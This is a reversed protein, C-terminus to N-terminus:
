LILNKYITLATAGQDILYNTGESGPVAFVDRGQDLAVRATVLSGSRIQAEIVIVAQCLGSIIRNRASFRGRPVFNDPPVESIVAGHTLISNYLARHQPPYIINVGTGLVAVTKGGAEIAAQHAVGDVGLAMGSVIVFRAEVLEKVLKATIEQGFSTIKRTGVVSIMKGQPLTGKIYLIKPPDIINKLLYPYKKDFITVKTVNTM